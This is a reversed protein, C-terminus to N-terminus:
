SKKNKPRNTRETHKRVAAPPTNVASTLCDQTTADGRVRGRASSIPPTNVSAFSEENTRKKKQSADQKIRLYGFALLISEFDAFAFTRRISTAYRNEENKSGKERWRKPLMQRFSPTNKSCRCRKAATGLKGGRERRGVKETTAPATRSNRVAPFLRFRGDHGLRGLAAPLRSCSTNIRKASVHRRIIVGARNKRKAQKKKYFFRSPGPM